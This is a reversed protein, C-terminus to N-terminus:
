TRESLDEIKLFSAASLMAGKSLKALGRYFDSVAHEYLQDAWTIGWKLLHDSLFERQAQVLKELENQDGKDIAAVALQALHAAFSMELGIQDEPEKHIRTLQLGFRAYWERVEITQNQFLLGKKSLHASEWPPANLKGLGIFQKLREYKLEAFYDAPIGEVNNKAWTELLHLGAIIDPHDCGFPADAFIDDSIMSELWAQDLEEYLIKGLLGFLLAEGTLEMKLDDMEEQMM